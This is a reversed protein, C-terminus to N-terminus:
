PLRGGGLPGRCGHLFAVLGMSRAGGCRWGGVGVTVEVPRCDQRRPGGPSVGSPPRCASEEGEGGLGRAHSRGPRVPRGVLPCVVWFWARPSLSWGGGVGGSSALRRVPSPCSARLPVIRMSRGWQRGEGSVRSTRAGCQGLSPPPLALASVRLPCAPCVQPAVPSLGLLACVAHFPTGASSSLTCGLPVSRWVCRPSCPYLSPPVPSVCSGACARVGWVQRSRQPCVVLASCGGLCYRCVTGRVLGM